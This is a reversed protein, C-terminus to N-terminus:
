AGDLDRQEDRRDQHEGAVRDRRLRQLQREAARFDAREEEAHQGTRDDRAVALGVPEFADLEHGNVRDDGQHEVEQRLQFVSGPPPGSMDYAIAAALFVSRGSSGMSLIESASKPRIMTSVNVQEILAASGSRSSMRVISKPAMPQLRTHPIMSAIRNRIPQRASRPFPMMVTRSTCRAAVGCCPWCTMAPANGDTTAETRWCSSNSRKRWSSLRSGSVRGRRVLFSQCPASPTKRQTKRIVNGTASGNMKMSSASCARRREFAIAMTSSNTVPWAKPREAPSRGPSVPTTITSRPPTSTAAVIARPPHANLADQRARHVGDNRLDCAPPRRRDAERHRPEARGQGRVEP